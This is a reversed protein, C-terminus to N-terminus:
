AHDRGGARGLLSALDQPSLGDLRLPAMPEPGAIALTRQWWGVDHWRDCKWGAERYTGALTFGFREHLAVSAPNPLAIGAFAQRYGQASLIPMLVQYLRKGVGARRATEAVYVSTEVSWDYAAREAFRHAYAYGLVDGSDAAVLWPYVPLTGEIRGAMESVSPVVTEFSIATTEVVPAYIRQVDAGDTSTALRIQIGANQPRECPLAVRRTPSSV